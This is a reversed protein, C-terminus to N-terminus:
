HFIDYDITAYELAYKGSLVHNKLAKHGTSNNKYTWTGVGLGCSRAQNYFSDNMMSLTVAVANFGRSAAISIKGSGDTNVLYVTYPEFGYNERVYNKIMTLSDAHFSIFNTRKLLDKGGIKVITEVTKAVALDSMMHGSGGKIEVVPVKGSNYCIQVFDNLFCVRNGLVSHSRIEDDTLSWVYSGVGFVRSFSNDHNVVLDFSEYVNIWAYESLFKSLSADGLTTRVEYKQADELKRYHEHATKIDESISLIQKKTKSELDLNEIEESVDAVAQDPTQGSEQNQSDGYNPLSPQGDAAEKVDIADESAEGSEAVVSENPEVTETSSATPEVPTPLPEPSVSGHRTEWIDCEIGWIEYLNAAARFANATNEKYYNHLGRHAVWKADEKTFRFVNVNYAGSVNSGDKAIAYITASGYGVGTVKGSSNVTAVNPNSSWWSVAKNTAPSVSAHFKSSYGARLTPVGSVSIWSVPTGVRVTVKKKKSKKSKCYITIKTKGKKKAKIVGKKSVSAVKKKSSKFKVKTPTTVGKKTKYAECSIQYYQGKRLVTNSNINHVVLTYKTKAKKKKAAAHVELPFVAGVLLVCIMLVSLLGAAKRAIGNRM